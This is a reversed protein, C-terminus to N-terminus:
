GGARLRDIISQVNADASLNRRAFIWAGERRVLEDRFTATGISVNTARDFVVLYLFMSARDGEVRVEHNGVFHRRNKAFTALMFDFAGGIAEHGHAEGWFGAIGGEPAFTAVFKERGEADLANDSAAGLEIVNLRDAANM